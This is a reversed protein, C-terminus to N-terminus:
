LLYRQFCMMGAGFAATDDHAVSATIQPFPRDRGRLPVTYCAMRDALRRALSPPIRGGIVVEQPDLLAAAASVVANAVPTVTDLWRDLTPWDEDFQELMAAISPFPLGDEELMRRLLELTPRLPRTEPPILGTFEGANGHAGRMLRGDVVMGGGLGRDIYLYAMSSPAQAGRQDHEGIAAANGDNEIVVPVGMRTHMLSELRDIAWDEMGLPANIQEQGELFFGSLAIGIGCLRPAAGHADLLATALDIIRAEVADRAPDALHERAQARVAGSLHSLTVVLSDARVAVGIAFAADPALVLPLSPQGMRGMMVKEEAAILGDSLLAEAIRSISPITLGCRRALEARSIPAHQRILGLVMRENASLARFPQAPLPSPRLHSPNM